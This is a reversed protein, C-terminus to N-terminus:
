RFEILSGLPGSKTLIWYMQIKGKVSTRLQQPDEPVWSMSLLIFIKDIKPMSDWEYRGRKMTAEDQLNCNQLNIKSIEVVSLKLVAPSSSM